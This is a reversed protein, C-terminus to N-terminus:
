EGRALKHAQELILLKRILRLCRRMVVAQKQSIKGGALLQETEGLKQKVFLDVPTGKVESRAKRELKKIQKM